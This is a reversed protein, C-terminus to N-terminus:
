YPCPWSSLLLTETWCHDTSPSHLPKHESVSCSRPLSVWTCWVPPSLHALPTRTSSVPKASVVPLNKSCSQEKQISVLIATWPVLNSVWIDTKTSFSPFTFNSVINAHYSAPSWKGSLRVNILTGGLSVWGRPQGYQFNYPSVCQIRWLPEMQLWRNTWDICCAHTRKAWAVTIWLQFIQPFHSPQKVSSYVM